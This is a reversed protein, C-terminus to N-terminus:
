PGRRSRRHTEGSMGDLGKHLDAEAPNRVTASRQGLSAADDLIQGIRQRIRRATGGDRDEDLAKRRRSRAKSAAKIIARVLAV